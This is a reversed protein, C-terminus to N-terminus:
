CPGRWYWHYTGSNFNSVVPSWWFHDFTYGYQMQLCQGRNKANTAMFQMTSLYIAATAALRQGVPGGFIAM